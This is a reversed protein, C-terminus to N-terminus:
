LKSRMQDIYNRAEPNSFYVHGDTKGINTALRAQWDRHEASTRNSLFCVLCPKEMKRLQKELIKMVPLHEIFPTVSVFDDMDDVIEQGISHFMEESVMLGKKTAYRLIASGIATNMLLVYPMSSFPKVDGKEIKEQVEPSVIWQMLEKRATDTSESHFNSFLAMFIVCLELPHDVASLIHNKVVEVNVTKEIELRIVKNSGELLAHEHIAAYLAVQQEWAKNRRRFSQLIQVVISNYQEPTFRPQLRKLIHLFERIQEVSMPKQGARLLAIEIRNALRPEITELVIDLDNGLIKLLKMPEEHAVKTISAKVKEQIEPSLRDAYLLKRSELDSIVAVLSSFTSEKKFTAFLDEPAIRLTNPQPEEEEPKVHPASVFKTKTTIGGGKAVEALKKAFAHVEPTSFGNTFGELAKTSQSLYEPLTALPPVQLMTGFLDMMEQYRDTFAEQMLHTVERRHQYHNKGATSLQNFHKTIHDCVLALFSTYAGTIYPHADDKEITRRFEESYLMKGLEGLEEFTMAIYSQANILSLFLYQEESHGQLEQLVSAIWAVDHTKLIQTNMEIPHRLLFHPNGGIIFATLAVSNIVSGANKKFLKEFLHARAAEAVDKDYRNTIVIIHAALERLTDVGRQQQAARILAINEIHEFRAVLELLQAHLTDDSCAKLLLFAHEKTAAMVAAYREAEPLAAISQVFLAEETSPAPPLVEVAEAEEVPEEVVSTAPEEPIAEEPTMDEPAAEEENVDSESIKAAAILLPQLEAMSKGFQTEIFSDSVLKYFWGSIFQQTLIDPEKGANIIEMIAPMDAEFYTDYAISLEARLAPYHQMFAGFQLFLQQLMEDQPMGILLLGINNQMEFFCNDFPSLHHPIATARVLTELLEATEPSQMLQEPMINWSFHAPISPLDSIEEEVDEVEITVTQLLREVEERVIVSSHLRLSELIRRLAPTVFDIATLLRHLVEEWAYGKEMTRRLLRPLIDQFNEHLPQLKDLCRLAVESHQTELFTHVLLLLHEEESLKYKSLDISPREIHAKTRAVPQAFLASAEMLARTRAGKFDPKTVQLLIYSHRSQLKSEFRHLMKEGEDGALSHMIEKRAVDTLRLPEGNILVTVGNAKLGNVMSDHLPHRASFVIFGGQSTHEVLHAFMEKQRDEVVADEPLHMFEEFTSCEIVDFSDKADFHVQFSHEFVHQSKQAIWLLHDPLQRRAAELLPYRYDTFTWQIADTPFDASYMDDYAKLFEYAGAGISAVSRPSMTNGQMALVSSILIWAARREVWQPWIHELELYMDIDEARWNGSRTARNIHSYAAQQAVNLKDEEFVSMTNSVGDKREREKKQYTELSFHGLHKSIGRLDISESKKRRSIRTNTMIEALIDGGIMREDANQLIAEEIRHLHEENEFISSIRGGDYIKRGRLFIDLQLCGLQNADFGPHANPFRKQIAARLDADEIWAAVLAPEGYHLLLDQWTQRPDPLDRELQLREIDTISYPWGAITKQVRQRVAADKIYLNLFVFLAHPQLVEKYVSEQTDKVSRTSEGQQRRADYRAPLQQKMQIAVRVAAATMEPTLAISFGKKSGITPTMVLHAPLVMNPYDPDLAARVSEKEPHFIMSSQLAAATIQPREPLKDKLEPLAIREFLAERMEFFHPIITSVAMVERVDLQKQNVKALLTDIALETEECPVDKLLAMYDSYLQHSVMELPSPQQLLHHLTLKSIDRSHLVESM